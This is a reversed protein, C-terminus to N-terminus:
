TRARTRLGRRRSRHTSVLGCRRTAAGGRAGRSDTRPSANTRGRAAARPGRPDPPGARRLDERRPGAPRAVEVVRELDVLRRKRLARLLLVADVVDDRARLVGVDLLDVRSRDPLQQERQLFADRPVALKPHLVRVRRRFEDLGFDVEVVRDLLAAEARGRGLQVALERPQAAHRGDHIEDRVLVGVDGRRGRPAPRREGRHRRSAPEKQAGGRTPHEQLREQHESDRVQRSPRVLAGNGERRTPGSADDERVYTAVDIVVPRRDREEVVQRVGLVRGVVGRDFAVLREDVRERVGVAERREARVDRAEVLLARLLRGRHVM